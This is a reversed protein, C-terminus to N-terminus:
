FKNMFLQICQMLPLRIINTIFYKHKVDYSVGTIASMHGTLKMKEHGTSVDWLKLNFDNSGTVQV